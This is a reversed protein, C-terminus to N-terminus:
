KKEQLYGGFEIKQADKPAKFEFTQANLKPNLKWDTFEVIFRPTDKLDRYAMTLRTPLNSDKAIWIEWDINPETFALHESLVGNVVSEGVLIASIMNKSMVAYPNSYMLDASPFSIKAKTMVFDLAADIDPLAPSEAYHKSDFDVAKVTDGNFFLGLNPADGSIKASVKNPRQLAVDSHTFFTLMQGTSAAQLGIISHSQYTFTNAATLTDSMQKLRDLAYKEVVPATTTTTPAPAPQTAEVKPEPQSSPKSKITSDTACASLLLAACLASSLTQYHKM